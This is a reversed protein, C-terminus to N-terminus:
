KYCHFRAGLASPCGERLNWLSQAQASSQALVADAAHAERDTGKNSGDLASEVFAELKEQDHKADAGACEVLLYGALDDTTGVGRALDNGFSPFPRLATPNHRQVHRCVHADMWEVASLAEGLRAKAEQALSAAAAFSATELLAVTGSGGKAFARPLAFTASTIIGLTGEAGIFLSKLDYGTNDQAFWGCYRFHHEFKFCSSLLYVNM